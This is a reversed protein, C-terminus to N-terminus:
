RRIVTSMGLVQSLSFGKSPTHSKAKDSDKIVLPLIMDAMRAHRPFAFNDKPQRKSILPIPFNAMRGHRPLAHKDKPVRRSLLPIPFNAMRTGHPMLTNETSRKGNILHPFPWNAMRAHRPFAFRDKPVRRSILPLPFNAMRAHRPFAFRDKPVRKSILPIPFNAMRGHRPIAFNDKPVRKSLLPIPWNAMHAGPEFLMERFPKRRSILPIPWDAMHYDNSYRDPGRTMIRPHDQLVSLTPKFTEPVTVEEVLNVMDAAGMEAMVDRTTQAVSLPKHGARVLLVAGNKKMHKQYATATEPAVQQATLADVLGDAQEYIDVIRSSFRRRQVLERRVLRAQAASEFYRTIVQTM